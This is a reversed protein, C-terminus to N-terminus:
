IENINFKGFNVIPRNRIGLVFMKASIRILIKEWLLFLWNVRWM